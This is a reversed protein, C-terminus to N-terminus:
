ALGKHDLVSPWGEDELHQRCVVAQAQLVVDIARELLKLADLGAV